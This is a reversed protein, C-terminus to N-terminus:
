CLAAAPQLKEKVLAEVSNVPMQLVLSLEDYLNKEAAKLYKTDMSTLKRGQAVRERRRRHLAKIMAMMKKADGSIIAERYDAERARDDRIWELEMDPITELLEQAERYTLVPRMVGKSKEHDVPTYIKSGAADLPQMEYYLRDKSIGDMKLTTVDLIKCVGKSGYMVFDGKQFMVAEDKELFLLPLWIPIM